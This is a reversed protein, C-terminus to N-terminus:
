TRTEGRRHPDRRDRPGVPCVPQHEPTGAGAGQPTAPRRVRRIQRHIPTAPRGYLRSCRTPGGLSLGLVFLRRGVRAGNNISVIGAGAPRSKQGTLGVKLSICTHHM